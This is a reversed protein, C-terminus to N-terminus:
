VQAAWRAYLAMVAFFGVGVALYVLDSMAFGGKLSRRSM